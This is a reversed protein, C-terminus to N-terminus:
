VTWSELHCRLAFELLAQTSTEPVARSPRTHEYEGVSGPCYRPTASILMLPVRFFYAM